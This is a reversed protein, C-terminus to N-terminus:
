GYLKDVSRDDWIKQNDDLSHKFKFPFTTLGMSPNLPPPRARGKPTWIREIEHLKRSIKVFDYTPAGEEPFDQIWWQIGSM